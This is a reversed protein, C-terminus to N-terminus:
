EAKMLGYAIIFLQQERGYLAVREYLCYVVHYQAAVTDEETWSWCLERFFEPKVRFRMELKPLVIVTAPYPMKSAFRCCGVDTMGGKMVKTRGPNRLKERIKAGTYASGGTKREM